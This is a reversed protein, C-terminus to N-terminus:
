RGVNLRTRLFYALWRLEDERLETLLGIKTGNRKRVQLEMIPRENVETGSPGMRVAVIDELRARTERTGFLGKKQVAFTAATVALITHRRGMNIAALLMGIGICWFVGIFLAPAVVSGGADGEKKFGNPSFALFTFVAMFAIWVLSFGFLGQSGKLLGVPPVVAAFGDKLERVVIRNDSPKEVPLDTEPDETEDVVQIPAGTETMKGGSAPLAATMTALEAALARVTARPYAIALLMPRGSEGEARLASIDANAPTRTEGSPGHVKLTDSVVFRSIRDLRRGWRLTLPGLHEVATIRGDAVRVESHGSNTIIVIGLLSFGLAVALGSLGLLAFGISFCRGIPDGGSQMGAGLPGSMWAVMFITMFLGMVLIGVGAKRGNRLNRGPLIYRVGAGEKQVRIGCKLHDESRPTTV